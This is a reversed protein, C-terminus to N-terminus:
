FNKGYMIAIFIAFGEREVMLEVLIRGYHGFTRQRTSEDVVIPVWAGSAIEFLTKM